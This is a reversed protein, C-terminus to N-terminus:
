GLNFVCKATLLPGFRKTQYGGEIGMNAGEPRLRSVIKHACLPSSLPTFHAFWFLSITSSTLKCDKQFIKQRQGQQSGKAEVTEIM